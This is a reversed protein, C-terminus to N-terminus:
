WLINQYGDKGIANTKLLYDAAYCLLDVDEDHPANPFGSVEDLFEENWLGEVLWVRGSEVMPSISYLRTKKSDKPTPTETVNLRTERRMVQVVSKGSAKPEIRITSLNDYGQSSVYEPIFKLLEPFEKYLKRRDIIYLNKNIECAAIIGTPDNESDDTYATDIFFHIPTRKTAKLTEFSQKTIINFWQRKVIDGEEATPNQLFQGNYARTGLDIKAEEIASTNLRIPDLLGNQYNKELHAPIPKTHETIEAPLKIHKLHEGKKDLLYGSVDKTHLRQMVTVTVTVAKDVKRSALTKTHEVAQKRHAESEAQKPNQPDDNIIIHAHKGTIAGGTSTTYRAGNATNDYASKGSKDKRIRVEPFLRQYHESLIIDRSKVAHEMAIDSAYSNSIIRLTPDKTWLWAPFMITAITSKTTGPPINILLDHLKPQRPKDKTQIVREAVEELERCLISIHWNVVLPENVIVGWFTRLFELLSRKLRLANIREILLEKESM